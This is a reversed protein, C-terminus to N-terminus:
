ALSWRTSCTPCVAAENTPYPVATGCTCILQLRYADMAGSYAGPIPALVTPRLTVTMPVHTPDPASTSYTTRPATPVMVTVLTRDLDLASFLENTM